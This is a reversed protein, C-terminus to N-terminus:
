AESAAAPGLRKILWDRWLADLAGISTPLRYAAGRADLWTEFTEGRALAQAIDGFVSPDGTQDILLDAFMRGQTYYLAAERVGTMGGADSSTIIRMGTGGAQATPRIEPTTRTPHDRSLFRPLDILDDTPYNALLGTARGLYVDRFVKRREEAGDDSEMLLPAIEDMWDPGPGGYHGQDSSEHDPWFTRVFWGHGLEHPVVQAERADLAARGMQRAAVARDGVAAVTAEDRGERRAVAEAGARAATTVQQVYFAQSIWALTRPFGAGALAAKLADADQPDHAQIVAWRSADRGFHAKFRAEGAEGLRSLHSAREADPAIAVGFPTAVCSLAGGPTRTLAALATECLDEASAPPAVILAFSLGFLATLRSM